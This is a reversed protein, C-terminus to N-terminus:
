VVEKGVQQGNKTYIHDPMPAWAVLSCRSSVKKPYRWQSDNHRFDGRKRDTLRWEAEQNGTTWGNILDFQEELTIKKLPIIKLADWSLKNNCSDCRTWLYRQEVATRLYNSGM